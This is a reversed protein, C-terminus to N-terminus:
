ILTRETDAAWPDKSSTSPYIVDPWDMRDARAKRNRPKYPTTSVPLLGCCHGALYEGQPDLGRVGCVDRLSVQGDPHRVLRTLPRRLVIAVPCTAARYSAPIGHRGYATVANAYTANAARACCTM